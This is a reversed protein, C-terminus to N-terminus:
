LTSTRIALCAVLQSPSNMHSDESLVFFHFFHLILHMRAHPNSGHNDDLEITYNHSICEKRM